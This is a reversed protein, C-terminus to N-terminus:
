MLICLEIVTICLMTHLIETVLVSLVSNQWEKGGVLSFHFCCKAVIENTNVQPDFRLQMSGVCFVQELEGM